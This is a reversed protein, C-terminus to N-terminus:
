FKKENVVASVGRGTLSKLNDAKPVAQDGIHDRGDRAIAQALPHDSLAEVAVAVAM